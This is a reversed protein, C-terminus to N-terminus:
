QVVVMKRTEASDGAQLRYFYVGSPNDKREWQVQYIGPQQLENVLTEIVRGSVDQVTLCVKAGVWERTLPVAYSILTRNEFPNPQNQLLRFTRPTTKDVSEESGVPNFSGTILAATSARNGCKDRITVGDPTVEDGVAVSPPTADTSLFVCLTDGKQNWEAGKIKKRGDRWTHGSSLALVDDINGAGIWPRNVMEDFVILVYDDGDIGPIPDDGDSARASLILPERNERAYISRVGGDNGRNADDVMYACFKMTYTTCNNSPVSWDKLSVLTSAGPPFGEVLAEDAYGSIACQVRFTETFDGYNRVTFEVPCVSDNLVVDPPSEVRVTGVDHFPWRGFIPEEACNNTTDFDEPQYACVRARYVVSDAAPVLWEKFEIRATSDVGLQLVQVTDAYEGITTIVDFILPVQGVNGVTAKVAYTSDAFVRGIPEDLSFVCADKLDSVGRPGTKVLYVDYFGAGFSSTRGVVIYGGDRTQEVSNAYDHNAGGFNRTWLTDGLSDTKILQAEWYPPGGWAYTQGALIYGGDSTYHVSYARDNWSGALIKEWQRSGLSDTKLLYIHQYGPATTTYGAVIYGFDPTQAVSYGADNQAGGYTKTWLTDGLSDAKLLYLDTDGAGYSASAGTVIYGFDSTQQVSFGKDEDDGGHTASWIVDGLSDIKLLLLNTSGSGSSLEYGTIVYGGDHTQGVSYAMDYGTGGYTRTWVTDGVSDTNVVYIDSPGSGFSETYGVVLYGNDPTPCLAAGSDRFTGGYARQWVLQGLSDTKILYTDSYLSWNAFSWTAGCIAYGDDDTQIVDSGCDQLHGGYVRHFTITAHLPAPCALALLVLGAAGYIGSVSIAQKV